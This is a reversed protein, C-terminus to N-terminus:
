KNVINISQICKKLDQRSIEFVLECEDIYSYTVKFIKGKQIFEDIKINLKEIAKKNINKHVNYSFYLNTFNDKASEKANLLANERASAKRAYRNKLNNNPTGVGISRYTSNDIWHYQPIPKSYCSIMPRTSCNFTTATLSIILGGLFLKKKVLPSKGKTLIVLLSITTFAISLFILYLYIITNSKIHM